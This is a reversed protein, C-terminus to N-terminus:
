LANEAYEKMRQYKTTALDDRQTKELRRLLCDLFVTQLNYITTNSEGNGNGSSSSGGGSRHEKYYEVITVFTEM